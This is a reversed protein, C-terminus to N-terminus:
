VTVQDRIKQFVGEKIGPIQMLEEISSFSGHEERYSVIEKAKSEGIGTLTMLEEKSASNLNVLGSSEELVEQTLEEAELASPVWIKQGDTMHEALNLWFDAADETMGGAAEVADAVRAQVPLEYVGPVHVEGCVYVCIQAEREQSEEKASGEQAGSEREESGQEEGKEEAQVVESHYLMAPKKCAAFGPLLLCVAAIGARIKM